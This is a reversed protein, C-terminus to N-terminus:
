GPRRRRARVSRARRTISRRAAVRGDIEADLRARDDDSLTPAGLVDLMHLGAEHRRMRAVGEALAASLNGGHARKARRRLWTLDSAEISVSVKAM